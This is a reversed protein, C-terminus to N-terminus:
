PSPTATCPSGAFHDALATSVFGPNELNSLHGSSPVVRWRANRISQALEECRERPVLVDAEGWLVLTPAAIAPLQQRMDASAIARMSAALSSPQNGAFKATFREVLASSREATAPAFVAAGLGSAIAAVGSTEVLEAFSRLGAGADPGLSAFTDLLSLSCVLSPAALALHQAVLGGMSLGVVHTHGIGLAELVAVADKALRDLTIGDAGAASQGHGRQDIAICRYQPSLAELQPLWDAAECGMGHLFLIPHGTGTDVGHIRAGDVNVIM